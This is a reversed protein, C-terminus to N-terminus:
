GPVRGAAVDLDDTVDDIVAFGAVLRVVGGNAVVIRGLDDTVAAAVTAAVADVSCHDAAIFGDVLRDLSNAIAIRDDAAAADGSIDTAIAGDVVIRHGHNAAVLRDVVIRRVSTAVLRDVITDDGIIRGAASAAAADPIGITVIAGHDIAVFGIVRSDRRRGASSRHHPQGM